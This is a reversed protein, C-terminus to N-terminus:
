GNELGETQPELYFDFAAWIVPSEAKTSRVEARFDACGSPIWGDSEAIQQGETYDSETVWKRAHIEPDILEHPALRRLLYVEGSAPASIELFM